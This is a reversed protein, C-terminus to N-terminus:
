RGVRVVFLLEEIHDAYWEHRVEGEPGDPHRQSEVFPPDAVLVDGVCLDPAMATDPYVHCRRCGHAPQKLREPRLKGNLVMVQVMALSPPLAVVIAFLSSDPIADKASADVTDLGDRGVDVIVVLGGHRDKLPCIDDLTM